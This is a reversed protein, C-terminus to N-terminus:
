DNKNYNTHWIQIAYSFTTVFIYAVIMSSALALSLSKVIGFTQILSGSSNVLIWVQLLLLAPSLALSLRLRDSLKIM